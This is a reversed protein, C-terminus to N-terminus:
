KSKLFMQFLEKKSTSWILHDEKLIWEAFEIAIQETVQSCNYSAQKINLVNLYKTTEHGNNIAESHLKEIINMTNLNYFNGINKIIHM